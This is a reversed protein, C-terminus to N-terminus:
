AQCIAQYLNRYQSSIKEPTFHTIVKERAQDSLQKELNNTLCWEIGKALEYPDMQDALYGNEMHDILDPNGGINFATVPTGCAMSEMITLSLNESLSPVITVHASRYAAVLQYDSEIIGLSRIQYNEPNPIQSNEAGFLVLEVDSFEPKNALIEMAKDLYNFGKNKDLIANMAGFLVYRKGPPLGSLLCADERNGPSFLNTDICHPIVSVKFSSFLSSEMAAKALWQSPAVIHINLTRYIANKTKWVQHSLDKDKQSHLAPCKGCTNQYRTCQYFYHCIGTFPWSDHLTWVIPKNVKELEGLDLFRLNIWHLHLIDYDIKQLAGHFSVSRLGSLFVDEREPYHNWTLREVFNRIKNQGYTLVKYFLNAPEYRNLSIVDPDDSNKHKVLMKIEISQEKLAQNIRVAARSAGGHTDSINVSLIRLPRNTM